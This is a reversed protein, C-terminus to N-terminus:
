VWGGDPVVRAALCLKPAVGCCRSSSSPSSSSASSKVSFIWEVIAGSVVTGVAKVHAAAWVVVVIGPGSSVVNALLCARPGTVVWLGESVVNTVCGCYVVTPIVAWASSAM